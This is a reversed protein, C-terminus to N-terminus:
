PWRGGAAAFEKLRSVFDVGGVGGGVATVGHSWKLKAAILILKTGHGKQGIKNPNDRRSSSGLNFFSAISPSHLDDAALTMGEGTDRFELILEEDGKYTGM